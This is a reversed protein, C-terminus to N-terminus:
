AAPTDLGGFKLPVGHGLREGVSDFPIPPAIRRYRKELPAISICSFLYMTSHLPSRVRPFGVMESSVVDLQSALWIM